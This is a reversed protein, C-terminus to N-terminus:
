LSRTILRKAIRLPVVAWEPTLPNNLARVIDTRAELIPPLAWLPISSATKINALSRGIAVQDAIISASSRLEQILLQNAKSIGSYITGPLARNSEPQAKLQQNQQLVEATNSKAQIIAEALAPSFPLRVRGVGQTKM